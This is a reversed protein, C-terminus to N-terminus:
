QNRLANESGTEWGTESGAESDTESGTESGTELGTESDTESDTESGVSTYKTRITIDTFIYERQPRRDSHLVGALIMISRYGQDYGNQDIVFDVVDEELLMRNKPTLDYIVIYPRRKDERESIAKQVEEDELADLIGLQGNSVMVIGGLKPNNIIANRVISAVNEREYMSPIIGTLTIGPFGAAIEESFGNVRGLNTSNSFSGIVGLVSGRGRMLIGLLGAAARGGQQNDMGIFALRNVGVIDTNFTVVPIGKEQIMRNLRERVGDCEVPMIALADIGLKELEDIAACQEEENVDTCERVIVELGYAKVEEAAEEFGRRIALMFSAECLQTVVGIKRMLVRSSLYQRANRQRKETKTLYGIERAAERVREAVEDKVRGRNNLVRDVTGRSVGTIKAIQQMTGAM